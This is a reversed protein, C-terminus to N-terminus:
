ESVNIPITMFRRCAKGKHRAPIWRPMNMVIDVYVSDEIFGNKRIVVVNSLTGDKEVIFKVVGRGKQSVHLKAVMCSVHKKMEDSGGPYLPATESVEFIDHISYDHFCSYSDKNMDYTMKVFVGPEDDITALQPIANPRNKNCNTNIRMNEHSRKVMKSPILGKAIFMVSGIKFYVCKRDIFDTDHASFVSIERTDRAKGKTFNVYFCKEQYLAKDADHLNAYYANNFIVSDMVHLFHKDFEVSDVALGHGLCPLACFVITLLFSLVRMSMNM